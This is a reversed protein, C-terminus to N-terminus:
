AFMLNHLGAVNKMILTHSGTQNRFTDKIIRWIKMKGIGHEVCVRNSSHNRNSQKKTLQKGRPKKHPVELDTGQYGSDGVGKTGRSKQVKTRVYMQKDHIRGTFSKSVAAIRLKRKQKGHGLKKKKRIVVIQHKITHRKKKGSYHIKQKKQPREIEQETGDFFLTMFEDEEIEM